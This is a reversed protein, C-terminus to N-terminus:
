FRAGERIPIMDHMCVLSVVNSRAVTEGSARKMVVRLMFWEGAPGGSCTAEYELARAPWLFPDSADVWDVGDTSCLVQGIADTLRTDVAQRLRLQVQAGAFLVSGDEPSVIQLTADTPQSRRDLSADQTPGTTMPGADLCSSLLATTILLASIRPTQM